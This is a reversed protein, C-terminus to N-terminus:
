EEGGLPIRALVLATSFVVVGILLVPLVAVLAM